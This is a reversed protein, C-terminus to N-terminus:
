YLINTFSVELRLPTKFKPGLSNYTCSWKPGTHHFLSEHSNLKNQNFESPPWRKEELFHRQRLPCIEHNELIKMRLMNNTGQNSSWEFYRCLFLLLLLM